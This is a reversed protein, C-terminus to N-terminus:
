RKGGLVRDQGFLERQLSTVEHLTEPSCLKQAVYLLVAADPHYDLDRYRLVEEVFADKEEKTFNDKNAIVAELCVQVAQKGQLVSKLTLM